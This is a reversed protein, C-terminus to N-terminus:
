LCSFIIQGTIYITSIDFYPNTTNKMPLDM